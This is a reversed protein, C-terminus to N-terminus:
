SDVLALIHCDTMENDGMSGSPTDLRICDHELQHLRGSDYKHSCSHKYFSSFYTPSNLIFSEHLFSLSFLSLSLSPTVSYQWVWYGIRVVELLNGEHCLLLLDIFKISIRLDAKKAHVQLPGLTKWRAIIHPFYCMSAHESYIQNLPSIQTYM